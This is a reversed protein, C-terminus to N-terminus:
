REPKHHLNLVQIKGQVAAYTCFEVTHLCRRQLRSEAPCTSCASHRLRRGPVGQAVLAGPPAPWTGSAGPCRARCRGLAPAARPSEAGRGSAGQAGPRATRGRGGGGAANGPLPLARRGGPHAPFHRRLHRLGAHGPRHSRRRRRSPGVGAPCSPAPRAPM